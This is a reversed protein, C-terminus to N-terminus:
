SCVTSEEGPTSLSPAESSSLSMDSEEIAISEKSSDIAFHVPLTIVLGFKVLLSLSKIRDRNRELLHTINM